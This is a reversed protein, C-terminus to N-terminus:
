MGGSEDSYIEGNVIRQLGEKMTNAGFNALLGIPLRLLRLHTLLQKAHVPAPREVSKIEVVVLSEVLIDLRLMEHFYLGDYEFSIPKQREVRLGRRELDRALVTEYVSELLGPGLAMHLKVCADVIIGTVENIRRRDVV